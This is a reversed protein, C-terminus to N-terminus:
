IIRPLKLNLARAADKSVVWEFADDGAEKLKLSKPNVNQWVIQDVHEAVLEGCKRQSVGFAGTASPLKDKVLDPV